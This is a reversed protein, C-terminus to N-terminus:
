RKPAEWEEGVLTKGAPLDRKEMLWFLTVLMRDLLKVDAGARAVGDAVATERMRRRYVTRCDDLTLPDAQEILAGRTRKPKPTEGKAPWTTAM